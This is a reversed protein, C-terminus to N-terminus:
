STHRELWDAIFEVHYPALGSYSDPEVILIRSALEPDSDLEEKFYGPVAEDDIWVVPGSFDGLFGYVFNMKWDQFGESFKRREYDGVHLDDPLGVLPSIAVNADYKWTTLWVINVDLALLAEGLRKSTYIPWGRDGGAFVPFATNIEADPWAHDEERGLANVVGDVDLLIVPRTPDVERLVREEASRSGEHIYRDSPGVM